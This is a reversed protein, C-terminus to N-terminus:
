ARDEMACQEVGTCRNNWGKAFRQQSPDRLVLSQLFLKRHEMFRKITADVDNSTVCDSVYHLTRQGIVGDCDGTAMGLAMQLWKGARRTGSNVAADFAVYDLGVPLSGGHMPIWYGALYIDRCEADTMDWVDGAPAGRKKRYDDYVRQTVGQNTRGGRDAPDDVKGGEHELVRKLCVEFRSVM